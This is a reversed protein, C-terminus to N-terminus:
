FNKLNKRLIENQAFRNGYRQGDFQVREEWSLDARKKNQAADWEEARVYGKKKQTETTSTDDTTTTSNQLTTFDQTSSAM